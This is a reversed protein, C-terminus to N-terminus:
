RRRALTSRVELVDRSENVSRLAEPNMPAVVTVRQAALLRRLSSDGRAVCAALADRVAPEWIACLPELIGSPQQYVTAVSDPQRAHILARLMPADILPMDVALVLWAAKPHRAWAALLGGAPGVSPGAEVVLPLGDYPPQSAQDSRVSVLARGCANELLRHSWRAQPEGHFDLNGKDEGLRSSLGGALLLGKLPPL